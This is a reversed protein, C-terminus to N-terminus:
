DELQYLDVNFYQTGNVNSTIYDGFKSATSNYIISRNGSDANRNQIIFSGFNTTTTIQWVRYADTDALVSPKSTHRGLNGKTSSGNYGRLYYTTSEDKYSIIQVLTAEITETTIIFECAETAATQTIQNSTITVDQKSLTAGSSGPHPMMVGNAANVILYTKGSTIADVKNYKKSTANVTVTVDKNGAQWYSNAAVSIRITASGAAVGTVVGTTSNVTAKDTNLSTFTVAGTSNITPSITVTSGVAVSTNSATITPVISIRDAEEVTYVAVEKTLNYYTAPGVANFQSGVPLVLSSYNYVIFGDIGDLTLNKSSVASVEVSEVKVLKSEYLAFNSALTAATVTTPTVANDHTITAGSKDFTSLQYNGSSKTVTGIITGNIKDGVALGHGSVNGKIGGSADEMFFTNGSVTTVLADTLTASFAVAADSYLAKVGALTTVPFGAQTITVDTSFVPNTSSITVVVDRPSTSANAELVVAVYGNAVSPTASTFGASASTAGLGTANAVFIPINLSTANYAISYTTQPVELVHDSSEADVCYVVISNIKKTATFSFVVKGSKGIWSKSSTSYAGVDASAPAEGVFIIKTIVKDNFAGVELQNNNYLRLEYNGSNNWLVPESGSGKVTTVYVPSEKQFAGKLQTGAGMAPKAISQADLWDSDSYNFQAISTSKNTFSVNLTHIKGPAFTFSGSAVNSLAQTGENTKVTVTLTQGAVIEFPKIAMYFTASETNALDVPDDINLTAVSSNTAGTLTASGDVFNVRYTGILDTVASSSFTIQQIQVPDGSNNTVNFEIASAIHKMSIAPQTDAAVGVVRGYLPFTTGSLHNKNNYGDQTQASAAVSGITIYDFSAPTNPGSAYPYIAYWDYSMAPDLASALNGSFTSSAAATAAEFAGDAVYSSTTTEAHWLSIQDGVAWKVTNGTNTTKTEEPNATIVFPIVDPTEESVVESNDEHVVEQEKGCSVLTMAAVALIGLIMNKKMAKQMKSVM